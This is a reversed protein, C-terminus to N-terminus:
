KAASLIEMIKKAADDLMMEYIEYIGTVWTKTMKERQDSRTGLAPISGARTNIGM